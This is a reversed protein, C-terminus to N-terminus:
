YNNAIKTKSSNTCRRTAWARLKQFILYDLKSFVSKSVETSYYNAWGRIVPNLRTILASQPANKHTDIIRSIEEYHLFIKEKSPTILTTFGLKRGQSDKDARYNGVTYQRINYGLFEFGPNGEHNHLTHTIRTKSPKFELSMSKLWEAIIQQCRQVVALKKHLVVFDDAYRILSLNERNVQKRGPLSEAFQRIRNELGHLAINVLLPSFPTPVSRVELEQSKHTERDREGFRAHCKRTVRSEMM